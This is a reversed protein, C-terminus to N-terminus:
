FGLSTRYAERQRERGLRITIEEFDVATARLAAAPSLQGSAAEVLHLDLALWYSYTGPIRLYPFQQKDSFTRQFAGLYDRVDAEDWGARVYPEVTGNGEPPLFHFRRGPDVGDSGRAAYVM